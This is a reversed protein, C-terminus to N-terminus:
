PCLVFHDSARFPVSLSLVTYRVTGFRVLVMSATYCVYWVISTGVMGYEVMSWSVLSPLLIFYVLIDSDQERSETELWDSLVDSTSHAGLHGPDLRAFYLICFVFYSFFLICFVFNSNFLDSTSHAGLHSPDLRAFYLSPFHM